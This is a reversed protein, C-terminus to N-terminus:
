KSGTGSFLVSGHKNLGALWCTAQYEQNNYTTRCTVSLNQTLNIFFAKGVIADINTRSCALGKTVNGKTSKEEDISKNFTVDQVWKGDALQERWVRQASVHHGWGIKPSKTEYSKIVKACAEAYSVVKSLIDVVKGGPLFTIVVSVVDSIKALISTANLLHPSPGTGM